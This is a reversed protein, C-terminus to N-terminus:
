YGTIRAQAPQPKWAPASGRRAPRTRSVPDLLQTPAFSTERAAHGLVARIVVSAVLWVGAAIALVSELAMSHNWPRAIGLFACFLWLSNSLGVTFAIGWRQLSSWRAVELHRQLWPFVGRHLVVANLVLLAVLLLKAQLKPNDLPGPNRDWDLGILVAGTVLMVGLSWVIVRSEFRTPPAIVVNPRRARRLLRLDTMLVTGIALCVAMLHGFVILLKFM